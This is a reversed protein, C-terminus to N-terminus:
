GKGRGIVHVTTEGSSVICTPRQLDGARTMVARLHSIAAVRAEGVVPEDLRVVTYGRSTAARAAGDMADRRGGIVKATARVLRPDGPKPTEAVEGRAGAQLRAVVTPPYADLGGFRRVVAVADDFTSADPVT